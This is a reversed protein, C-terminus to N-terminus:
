DFLLLIPGLISLEMILESFAKVLNDKVIDCGEEFFKISFGYPGHPKNGGCDFVVKQIEDEAFLRVM